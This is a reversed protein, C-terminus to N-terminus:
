DSQRARLQMKGLLFRSLMWGATLLLAVTVGPVIYGTFLDRVVGSESVAGQDAVRTLAIVPNLLLSLESDVMSFFMPLLLNVIFVCGLAWGIAVSTRKCGWSIAAGACTYCFATAGIIAVTLAAQILSVGQRAENTWLSDICVVMLPWLPASFVVCAILPALAKGRLIDSNPLLSMMLGEFTGAERERSFSSAGMVPTAIMVIILGIFALVWWIVTRSSPQTTAWWLCQFYFGAVCVGLVAEFVIVWSPVHRMRFKGRVERQLVPNAFQIWGTFPIDWWMSSPKQPLETTGQTATKKPKANDIWYQEPLPRRVGKASLWWLIPLLLLQAGTSLLFPSAQALQDLMLLPEFTTGSAVVSGTRFDVGLLSVAGLIPNTGGFLRALILLLAEVDSTQSGINGAVAYAVASGVGWIVLTVYTARMATAARRTWASFALGISACTVATVMHLATASLFVSPSVGGLLFCIAIVPTAALMMLLVFLLASLLKGGAIQGPRLPSLQLSELLGQEREGAITTATLTPALLMWGLTQLWALTQFLERGWRESNDIVSRGATYTRADDYQMVVALALPACFALVLGLSRFGRWRTRLERGIIPNIEM